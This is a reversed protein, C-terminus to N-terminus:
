RNFEKRWLCVFALFVEKAFDCGNLPQVRGKTRNRVPRASARAFFGDFQNVPDM